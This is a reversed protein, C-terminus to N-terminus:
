RAWGLRHVYIDTYGNTDAAYNTADSEFAVFRGDASIEPEHNGGDGEDGSTTVSVRTNTGALVDYVFIHTGLEDEESGGSTQPTPSSWAVYKGDASISSHGGMTSAGKSVLVTTGAVRDRVFVDAISDNEPDGPALNSAYSTFAVYRGDTSITNHGRVGIGGSNTNGQAGDSALSVLETKRTLRDHVFVDRYRNRDDDVLDPATSSFVVYRGDQSIFGSASDGAGEEGRSSVSVRATTRTQLDHVFIDRCLYVASAPGHVPPAPNEGSDSAEVTAPTTCANHDDPVLNSFVSSFAIHRGDFDLSM